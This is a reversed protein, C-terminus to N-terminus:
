SYNDMRCIFRFRNTKGVDDHTHTVIFVDIPDQAAHALAVVYVLGILRLM